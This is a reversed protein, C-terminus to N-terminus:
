ASGYAPIYGGADAIADILREATPTRDVDVDDRNGAIVKLTNYTLPGDEMASEISTIRSTKSLDDRGFEVEVGHVDTDDEVTVTAVDREDDPWAQCSSCSGDARLTGGCEDCRGYPADDDPTTVDGITTQADDVTEDEGIPEGRDVIDVDGRTDAYDEAWKPVDPDDDTANTGSTFVNRTLYSYGIIGPRGDGCGNPHIVWARTRLPEIVPPPNSDSVPVKLNLGRDRCEEVFEAPTEWNSAGVSVLVDIARASTIEAYHDGDFGHRFLRDAHDVLDGEPTTTRDDAVYHAGFSNGPFAKWGPIIAGRGTHERYEVPDDLEVFVPLEGDPDSLAALDTRIYCANPDLHGCGRERNDISERGDDGIPKTLQQKVHEALANTM